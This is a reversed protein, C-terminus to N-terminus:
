LAVTETQPQAAGFRLCCEWRCFHLAEGRDYEVRLWGAGPSDEISRMWSDCDDADCRYVFEVSM